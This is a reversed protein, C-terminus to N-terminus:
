PIPDPVPEPRAEPAEPLITGLGRLRERAIDRIAPSPHGVALSELYRRAEPTGLDALAHIAVLHKEADPGETMHVLARVVEPTSVKILGLAAGARTAVRANPHGALRALDATAGALRREGAESAAESLLGPHDSTHLVALIEADDAHRMKVQGFLGKAGDAVVSRLVEDLRSTATGGSLGGFDRRLELKLRFAEIAASGGTGGTPCYLEGEFLARAEGADATLVPQRNVLLAYGVNVVARCGQGAPAHEFDAFFAAEVIGRLTPPIAAVRVEPPTVDEIRLEGLRADIPAAVPPRLPELATEAAITDASADDDAPSRGCAVHFACAFAFAGLVLPTSGRSRRHSVDRVIFGMFTMFRSARM